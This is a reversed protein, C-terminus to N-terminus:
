TGDIGGAANFAAPGDVEAERYRRGPVHVPVPERVHDDTRDSEVVSLGILAAGEDKMWM